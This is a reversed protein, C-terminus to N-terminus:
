GEIQMRVVAQAYIVYRFDAGESPAVSVGGMPVWQESLAQTVRKALTDLDDATIVAYESIKIAPIKAM